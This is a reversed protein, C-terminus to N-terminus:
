EINMENVVSKVGDVDEIVKSVLEKEAINLAKGSVTVVADNTTVSTRLVGTSRHIVLAMKVKATIVSDDLKEGVTSTKEKLITMKNEVSKVGQIDEVLKTILEKEASNEVSGNIVVIGNTTSVETRFTSTSRHLLLAMKVQTTIVADDLKEGVSPKLKVTSENAVDAALLPFTNVVLVTAVIAVKLFISPKM